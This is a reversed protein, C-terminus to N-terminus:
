RFSTDTKVQFRRFNTYTATGRIRATGQQYSEEMRSPVWFGLVPDLRYDVTIDTEAPYQLRMTSRAVLGTEPDILYETTMEADHGLSTRVLTPRASETGRVVWYRVGDREREGAKKYKFRWQSSPHLFFLATTPLNFNRTLHGVNFRASEDALRRAQAVATAPSELFLKLLRDERDRVKSRNVEFVDRFGMWEQTGPVRVVLVDAALRRETVFDRPGGSASQESREEAVVSSFQEAFGAAYRGARELVAELTPPPAPAQAAAPSVATM